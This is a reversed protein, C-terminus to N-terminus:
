GELTEIRATLADIKDDAEQLAKVLMPVFKAYTLGYASGDESMHTTLNTEDEIKYGFEAEIKEVDQALFGVDTWSEKHKGDPTQGEEYKARKDWKYTVPELRNIFSLGMDLPTVDTKDRKDSAVTISVQTNIKSIDGNGLTITNSATTIGGGPAGGPGSTTGAGHGILINNAGTTVAGGANLGICVNGNGTTVNEGALYGVAVNYDANGIRLLAGAGVAVSQSCSTGLQMAGQGIATNQIGSNMSTAATGGVIVNSYVSGTLSQGAQRGICVNLYGTTNARLADKGVAVNDYGSTTSLMAADGVAVNRTGTTSTSLSYSGLSVSSAGSINADLALYGVAVNDGGTTNEQLAAYGVATNNSATTNKFLALRGVAVNNNGQTNTFLASNGLATNYQGSVNSLMSEYGVSTNENATTNNSLSAYGIATNYDGTTLDAFVDVGFGSNYNAGNITGTADDGVMISGTGFTKFTPGGAPADEWAVGSGTSTMLQGDTGQGGNIKFNEGDVVAADILPSVITSNFTAVGAASMDFTLATIETGGDNGKILVDKDQVEAKIELNSSGQKFSGFVTGADALQIYGTDTDVVINGAVDITFNGSSLALTTGDLTFNDVVVGANATLVGTSALTGSVAINTDLKASTVANDLILETPILTYAM